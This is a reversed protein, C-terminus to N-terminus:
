KRGRRRYQQELLRFTDVIGLAILVIFIAVPHVTGGLMGPTLTFPHHRVYVEGDVQRAVLPDLAIQFLVLVEAVAEASRAAVRETHVEALGDDGVHQGLAPAKVAALSVKRQQGFQQLLGLFDPYAEVPVLLGAAHAHAPPVDPVEIQASVFRHAQYPFEVGAVQPGPQREEPPSSGSM